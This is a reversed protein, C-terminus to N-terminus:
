TLGIDDKRCQCGKEIDIIRGCSNCVALKEFKFEKSRLNLAAEKLLDSVRWGEVIIHGAKELDEACKNLASYLNPSDRRM